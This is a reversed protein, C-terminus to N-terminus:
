NNTYSYNIIGNSLSLQIVSDPNFYDYETGPEYIWVKIYPTGSINGTYTLTFDAFEDADCRYIIISESNNVQVLEGTGYHSLNDPILGREICVEMTPQAIAITNDVEKKCSVLILGMVMAILIIRVKKM